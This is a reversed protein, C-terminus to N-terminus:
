DILPFKKWYFLAAIPAGSPLKFEHSLQSLNEDDM